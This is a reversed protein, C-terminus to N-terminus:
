LQLLPQTGLLLTPIQSVAEESYRRKRRWNLYPQLFSPRVKADGKVIISDYVIAPGAEISLTGITDQEFDAEEISVQCFPHGNNEYQQVVKEAFRAYEIFPLTGNRVSRVPVGHPLAELTSDAIRIVKNRYCPGIFCDAYLTDGNARVTDISFAIYGQRHYHDALLPLTAQLAASDEVKRPMLTRKPPDPFPQEATYIVNKQSFLTGCFVVIIVWLIAIRKIIM